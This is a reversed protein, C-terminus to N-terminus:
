ATLEQPYEGYVVKKTGTKEYSGGQPDITIKVKSQEFVPTLLLTDDKYNKGIKKIYKGTKDKTLGDSSGKKLEWGLFKYGAVTVKPLTLAKGYTFTRKSLKIANIEASVSLKNSANNDVRATTSLIGSNTRATWVAYLTVVGNKADHGGVVANEIISGNKKYSYGKFVFGERVFDPTGLVTTIDEYKLLM